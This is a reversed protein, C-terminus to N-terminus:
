ANRDICSSFAPNNQEAQVMPFNVDPGYSGGKVYTGTPFVSAPTRGYQRILRRLDGLRNGRAFLWFGRERFLLDQRAAVTTPDTLAPLAPSAYNARLNNLTTLYAPDNAKLQAEAVILQAEVYDAITVPAYRDPYIEQAYRVLGSAADFVIGSTAGVANCPATGGKCVPIRPDNATVYNMALPGENDAITYRGVSNNLSWIQNYWSNDSFEVQRVFSDSVLAATAGAEPFLGLDLQARAKELNTWDRVSNSTADTQGSLRGLASDLQVIAHAFVTSDTSPPAPAPVADIVSSLPIGNCVHEALLIEAYAQVDHMEALEWPQATPDYAESTARAQGAATRARYLLRITSELISNQTRIGRQDTENRETFTDGSRFEDALMGGMLFFSENQASSGGTIQVLRGLAGARLAAAGAPSNVDAPNIIDPDTVQLIKDTSCGALGAAFAVAAIRGSLRRLRRGTSHHTM